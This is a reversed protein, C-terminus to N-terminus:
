FHDNWFSYHFPWMFLINKRVFRGPCVFCITCRIYVLLSDFTILLIVNEFLETNGCCYFLFYVSRNVVQTDDVLCRIIFNVLKEKTVFILFFNKIKLLLIPFVISINNIGDFSLSIIWKRCTHKSRMLFLFWIFYIYRIEEDRTM